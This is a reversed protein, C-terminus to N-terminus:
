KDMMLKSTSDNSIYFIGANIIEISITPFLRKTLDEKEQQFLDEENEEYYFHQLLEVEENLTQMAQEAWTLDEQEINSEIFDYVRKLGSVPRIIPSITYTYDSMMRDFSLSELRNMMDLLIAGHILHLGISYIVEKKQLGCYNVRLNCILWPYLPEQVTSERKEYLVTYKAKKEIFNFIQQLRPSGFHIWEGNSETQKKNIDLQLTTPEGVQNLKDMYHWYFPRNMLAEDLERTLKVHLLGEDTKHVECDHLEFFGHLFDHLNNIM